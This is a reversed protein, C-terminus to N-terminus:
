GCLAGNRGHDGVVAVGFIQALLNVFGDRGGFLLGHLFKFGRVLFRLQLEARFALGGDPGKEGGVADGVVDGIAGAFGGGFGSM